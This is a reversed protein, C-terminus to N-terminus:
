LSIEKSVKRNVALQTAKDRNLNGTVVSVENRLRTEQNKIAATLAVLKTTFNRKAYRVASTTKAKLVNIKKSVKKFRVDELSAREAIKNNLFRVSSDLKRAMARRNKAMTMYAGM